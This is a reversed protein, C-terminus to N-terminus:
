MYLSAVAGVEICWIGITCRAFIYAVPLDCRRLSAAPVHCLFTAASVFASRTERVRIWLPSPLFTFSLLVKHCMRSIKLEIPELLRGPCSVPIQDICCSAVIIGLQLAVTVTLFQSLSPSDFMCMPLCFSFFCFSLYRSVFYQSLLPLALYLCHSVSLFLPLHLLFVYRM